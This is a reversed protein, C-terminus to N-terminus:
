FGKSLLYSYKGERLDLTIFSKKNNNNQKSRLIEIFHQEKNSGFIDMKKHLNHLRTYIIQQWPNLDYCMTHSLM